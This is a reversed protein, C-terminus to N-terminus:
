RSTRISFKKKFAYFYYIKFLIKKHEQNVLDEISEAEVEAKTMVVLGGSIIPQTFDVAMLREPSITLDAVALDAAGSTFTM